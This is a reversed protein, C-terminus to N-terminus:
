KEFLISASLDAPVHYRASDPFYRSEPVPDKEVESPTSESENSAVDDVEDSAVDSGHDSEEEHIRM